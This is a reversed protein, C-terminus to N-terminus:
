KMEDPLIKRLKQRARTLRVEVTGPAVNLIEAIEDISRSEFYRLVIPMRYKETLRYVAQRLRAATEDAEGAPPPVYFGDANSRLWFLCRTFIRRRRISTRCRNATIRMLWTSFACEDRFNKLQSFVTLFIEQVLDDLDAANGLLRFALRHVQEQYQRVLDDFAGPDGAKFRAIAQRDEEAANRTEPPPSILATSEMM